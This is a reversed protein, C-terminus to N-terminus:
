YWGPFNPKRKAPTRDMLGVAIKKLRYCPPKFDKALSDRYAQKQDMLRQNPHNKGRCNKQKADVAEIVKTMRGASVVV